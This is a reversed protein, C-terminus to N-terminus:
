WGAVLAPLRTSVTVTTPGIVKDAPENGLKAGPWVPDVVIVTVGAPPKVPITSRVQATLVYMALTLSIGLQVRVGAAGLTVPVAATVLVRAMEVVADVLMARAGSGLGPDRLKLPNVVM